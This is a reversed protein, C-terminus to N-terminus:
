PYFVYLRYGAASVNKAELWLRVSIDTGAAFPQDASTAPPLYETPSFVRRVIATDGTDTLSLELSPYAQAYRARNHLTATLMLLNNRSPDTQLDSAEISVLEVHRPLPLDVGFAESFLLLLPRLSPTSVVIESRFHFAVQGALVLILLVAALVFPWRTPQEEPLDIRASIPDEAWRSYGEIENTARPMILGDNDKIARLPRPAKATHALTVPPALEFPDVERNFDSNYANGANGANGVSGADDPAPDTEVFFPERKDLVATIPAIEVLNPRESTEEASAIPGYATFVEPSSSGAEDTWPAPPLTPNADEYFLPRTPEEVSPQSADLAALSSTDPEPPREIEASVPAAAAIPAATPVATRAIRDTGGSEEDILCDLANFVTQCQGCRVKGARAKLQEPTIRFTTQCHPCFTRM